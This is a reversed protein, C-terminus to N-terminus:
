RDDNTAVAHGTGHPYSRTWAWTTNARRPSCRAKHGRRREGDIVSLRVLESSAEALRDLLPQAVDVIGTRSLYSLGLSVLKTTLVYDGHSRTQRVYGLQCLEALLGHTASRPIGMADAITAMPAGEPTVALFELIGLTRELIGNM